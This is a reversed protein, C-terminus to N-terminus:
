IVTLEDILKSLKHNIITNLLQMADLGKAYDALILPQMYWVIIPSFVENKSVLYLIVGMMIPKYANFVSPLNYVKDITYYLLEDLSGITQLDHTAITNIDNKIDVHVDLMDDILQICAGLDYDHDAIENSYLSQIAVSTLGGKKEAIKLYTARDLTANSQIKVGEVEALFVKKLWSHSTPCNERLRNYTEVIETLFKDETGSLEPNELLLLMKSITAKKSQSDIQINDLYHDVLMYLLTLDFISDLKRIETFKCMSFLLAGCFCILGSSLLEGSSKDSLNFADAHPLLKYIFLDVARDCRYRELKDLLINKDEVSLIPGWTQIKHRASRLEPSIDDRSYM